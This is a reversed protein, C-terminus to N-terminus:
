DYRANYGDIMTVLTMGPRVLYPLTCSDDTIVLPGCFHSLRETVLLIIELWGRTFYFEHPLDDDRYDRIAIETWPGEAPNQAWSVDAYWTRRERNRSIEFKYDPLGALVTEIERPTPNRNKASFPPHFVGESRLWVASEDNLPVVIYLTGM